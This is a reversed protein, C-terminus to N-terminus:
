EVEARSRRALVPTVSAWLLEVGIQAIRVGVAVAAAVTLPLVPSLAAVVAGERAGLGGPLVFAIVSAAFRRAQTNQDNVYYERQVRHGTFELLRSMSDGLIVGRGHGIHMPGTPNISGFEVQLMEGGGIDTAGYGPGHTAVQTVLGQLWQPTLKFNVYGGVAQVTAAGDAISIAGALRAAISPPATKLAKALKLGAPSAYDGRDPGKARGLELDPLEGEVGLARVADTLARAIVDRIGQSRSQTM